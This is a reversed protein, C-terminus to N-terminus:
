APAACRIKAAPVCQNADAPKQIIIRKPKGLQAAFPQQRDRALGARHDLWAKGRKQVVGIAKEGHGRDSTAHIASFRAALCCALARSRNSLCQDWLRRGM